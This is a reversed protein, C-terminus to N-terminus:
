GIELIHGHQEHLIIDSHTMYYQTQKTHLNRKYDIFGQSLTRFDGGIKYLTLVAQLSLINSLIKAKRNPHKFM